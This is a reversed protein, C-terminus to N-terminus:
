LDARFNTVYYRGDLKRLGLSNAQRPTLPPESHERLGAAAVKRSM